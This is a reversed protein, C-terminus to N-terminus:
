PFTLSTAVGSLIYYSKGPQLELLTYINMEPWFVNAGATEKIIILDDGLQLLIESCMMGDACLVPTLNWGQQLAITKSQIDSGETTLNIDANLKILYGSTYDWNGLSNM